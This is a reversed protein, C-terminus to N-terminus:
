IKIRCAAHRSRAAVSRPVRAGFGAGEADLQRFRGVAKPRGSLLALRDVAHLSRRLYKLKMAEALSRGRIVLLPDTMIITPRCNNLSCLFLYMSGSLADNDTLIAIDEHRISRFGLLANSLARFPRAYGHGELAFPLRAVAGAWTPIVSKHASTFIRPMFSVSRSNARRSSNGQPSSRPVYGGYGDWPREQLRPASM